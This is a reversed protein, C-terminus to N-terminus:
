NGEAPSYIGGIEDLGTLDKPEVKKAGDPIQPTFDHAADAGVRWDRVTVVYSPWGEVDKSTVAYGCPYPADGQAIWVQWDVDAGKFALHDCEVGDIVGSGLDRVETAGETLVVFADSTLIDVAPLPAGYGDKLTAVLADFDGPAPIEAYAGALKGVLTLTAGDFTMEADAFGGRRTAAFKNPRALHVDGSAALAVKQGDATVLELLSDYDFALAQQAALYETMGRLLDRAPDDQAAAGQAGLALAALAAAGVGTTRKM